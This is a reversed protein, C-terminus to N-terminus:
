RRAPTRLTKAETLAKTGTSNWTCGHTPTRERRATDLLGGSKNEATVRNNLAISNTIRGGNVDGALDGARAGSISGTATATVDADVVGVNQITAGSVSGFLGAYAYTHNSTLNVTVNMHSITHNDGNFTGKFIKGNSNTDTTNKIPTWFHHSGNLDLNNELRIYKEFFGNQSTNTNMENALTALSQEDYILFPNTSAGAHGAAIENQYWTANMTGDWAASVAGTMLGCALLLVALM